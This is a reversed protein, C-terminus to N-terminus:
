RRLNRQLASGIVIFFRARISAAQPFSMSPSYLQGELAFSAAKKTLIVSAKSKKLSHCARMELFRSASFISSIRRHGSPSERYSHGKVSDNVLWRYKKCHGAIHGARPRSERLFMHVDAAKAAPVELLM